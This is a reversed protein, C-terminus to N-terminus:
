LHRVGEDEEERAGRKLLSELAQRALDKGAIGFAIALGTVIGGFIVGFTIALTPGGVGLHGLAVIVALLWILLRVAGALLRAGALRANVAAILAGRGLFAAALGGVLVILVATLLHPLFVFFRLVLDSGAPGLTNLALLLSFLLVLGGAFQGVVYSSGRYLGVREIVAALGLREALRDFRLLRLGRYIVQKVLWGAVGGVVLVVLAASLQPLYSMMQNWLQDLPERVARQWLENM